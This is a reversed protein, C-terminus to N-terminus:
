KFKIISHLVNNNDSKIVVYNESNEFSYNACVKDELKIQHKYLIELETCSNFENADQPFAELAIDLYCLNNVHNNVDIDAKRIGYNITNSYNQPEELKDLETIGFVSKDEPNYKSILETDIKAIRGKLVDILVWKSTAIAITEGNSDLIEFDRYSYLKTSYRSWTKVTITDGYKPRSNIQVKWNLLAWSYNTKDIDTVGFGISASHMEAADQLISLFGKNSIYINKGLMSLTIRFDQTFYM